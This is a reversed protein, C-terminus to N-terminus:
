SEENSDEGLYEGSLAKLGRQLALALVYSRTVRVHAHNPAGQLPVVLREALALSADTVRVSTQKSKAVRPSVVGHLGVPAM